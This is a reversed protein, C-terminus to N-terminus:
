SAKTNPHTQLSPASLSRRPPPSSFHPCRKSTRDGGDTSISARLNHFSMLLTRPVTVRPCLRLSSSLPGRRGLVFTGKDDSCVLGSHWLEGVAHHWKSAGNLTKMWWRGLRRRGLELIPHASGACRTIPVASNDAWGPFLMGQSDCFLLQHSWLPYFKVKRRVVACSERRHM